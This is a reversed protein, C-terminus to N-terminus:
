PVAYVVVEASHERRRSGTATFVPRGLASLRRAEAVLTLRPHPNSSRELVVYQVPTHGVPVASEQGELFVAGSYYHSWCYPDVVVDGPALREAIWLGAARFGARDAHLTKGTRVAGIGILLILLM